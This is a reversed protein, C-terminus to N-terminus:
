PLCCSYHFTSNDTAPSAAPPSAGPASVFTVTMTFVSAPPSSAVEAAPALSVVVPSTSATAAVMCCCVERLPHSSSHWVENFIYFSKRNKQRHAFVSPGLCYKINFVDIDETRSTLACQLNFRGAGTRM